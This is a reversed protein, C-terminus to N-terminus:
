KRRPKSRKKQDASGNRDPKPPVRPPPSAVAVASPDAAPTTTLKLLKREAIGWLSSAILYLSLGSAVKYFMLGMFFTMYKMMKQQMVAQENTPPPMTLKQTVLFLAVTIIPLLNFYPGLSFIGGGRNVADPMLSSWDLLMDPAALNSCWRIAQSLLPSGRLEVDMMLARYLGIFIPLQLLMPLCGALPNIKHKRYLEQTAQSRKQMDGKYKEAIRDMEPKLAQMRAMSKTQKYSLPFLAGRVVVTLMVIAIGYNGVLRYFFHLIAVMPRAVGGYWGYYILDVLSYKPDGAARYQSLLGPRKPGIFVQYSDRQSEGAALEAPKRALRVTVNPFHDKTKEGPAMGAVITDTTELWDDAPAAKIPIITASFYQGNVGAYMLPARYLTDVKGQAIRSATYHTASGQEFRATIDRVNTPNYWWGETPMGSPGDLRYALKQPESGTNRMEVDLRVHYGPFDSDGRSEAPVPTLTYRKIFELNLEPLARRFTVSTADQSAVEWNSHELLAALRNSFDLLAQDDLSLQEGQAVLENIRKIDEGDFKKEGVAALTVLLSQREVFDAPLKEKRMAYNEGEPRLVAFPRRKLRATREQPPDDGRRVQLTLEQGPKTKSLAADFNAPSAIQNVADAGVAAIVDDVQIGAAAAPTGDGVAHVRVGGDEPSLELEGLYGSRDHQDAYRPSTMEARHLAAGDTSLTLLMRFGSDPDLSGLTIYKTPASVAALAPMQAQPQAPEADAKADGDIPQKEDGAQAVAPPLKRQPPPPPPFLTRFFLVVAFSILLFAIVRRQEV